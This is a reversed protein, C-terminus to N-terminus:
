KGRIDFPFYKAEIKKYTGDADAAAIAKDFMDRLDTDEPRFAAGSGVGHIAPIRELVKIIRCCGQGKNKVYDTEVISDGNVYDIRGSALDLNAEDQTPYLKITSDKYFKELYNAHITSSQTGIMKGKLAEPSVDDSKNDARGVIVPPTAYYFDSFIVKKKREETISMSSFIVDFKNGNLSPIIGDWDQNQFTCTVNMRACLDKAYDVEFGVIQGQPDVSEFPAYSADMGIRVTKWEKASAASAVLLGAMAAFALYPIRRMIEELRWKLNTGPPRGGAIRPAWGHNGLADQGTARRSALCPPLPHHM